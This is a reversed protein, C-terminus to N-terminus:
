EKGPMRRLMIFLGVIVGILTLQIMRERSRFTNYLFNSFQNWVYNLNAPHVHVALTYAPLLTCETRARESVQAIHFPAPDALATVPTLGLLLLVALRVTTDM